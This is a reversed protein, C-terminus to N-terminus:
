QPDAVNVVVKDLKVYSIDHWFVRTELTHGIRGHLEANVVFRQYQQAARWQKRTVDRTAIAKGETADYVDLTVVVGDDSSNNDVKLLFVAQVSGDGFQTGYPGFALHGKVDGATNASWGDGDVRGVGHKLLGATDEAEYIFSRVQPAALETRLTLRRRAEITQQGGQIPLSKGAHLLGGGLELGGHVTCLCGGIDENDPGLQELTVAAGAAYGAQASMTVPQNAWALIVDATSPARARLDNWAGGALSVEQGQWTVKVTASEPRWFRNFRKLYHADPWRTMVFGGILSMDGKLEPNGAPNVLQMTRDVYPLNAHLEYGLRLNVVRRVGDPFLYNQGCADGDYTGDGDAVKVMPAEYVLKLSTATAEKVVPAVTVDFGPSAGNCASWWPIRTNTFRPAEVHAYQNCWDNTACSAPDNPERVRSPFEIHEAGKYAGAWTGEGDEGPQFLNVPRGDPDKVVFELADGAAGDLLWLGNMKGHFGTQDVWALYRQGIFVLDKPSPGEATPFGLGTLARRALAQVRAKSAGSLNHLVPLTPDDPGADGPDGADPLGADPDVGADFPEGGDPRAADPPDGIYGADKRGADVGADRGPKPLGGCGVLGVGVLVVVLRNM